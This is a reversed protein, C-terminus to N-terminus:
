HSEITQAIMRSTTAAIEKDIPINKAYKRIKAAIKQNLDSKNIVCGIEIKFYRAVDVVRKMDYITDVVFDNHNQQFLF